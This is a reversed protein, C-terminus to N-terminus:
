RKGRPQVGEAIVISADPNTLSRVLEFRGQWTRRAEDLESQAKQGKPLVWKTGSHTLHSALKFLSPLSAVARATVVDFKGKTREAKGLFIEVNDLALETAV